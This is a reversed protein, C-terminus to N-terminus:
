DVFEGGKMSCSPENGRECSGVVPGWGSDFSVLGCRFPLTKGTSKKFQSGGRSPSNPSHFYLHVYEKVEASSPPSHDAERGPRKVRLSLAGSSWQIPPQTPRPPSSSFFEKGRGPSSGGSRGARLRASYWQAKGALGTWM